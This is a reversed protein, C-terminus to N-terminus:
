KSRKGGAGGIARVRGELDTIWVVNADRKMDSLYLTNGLCETFRIVTDGECINIKVERVIKELSRDLFIVQM